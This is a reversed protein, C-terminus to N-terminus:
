EGDKWDIVTEYPSYHAKVHLAEGDGRRLIRVRKEEFPLLNFYNDDFLWGFAQGDQGGGLEVCHATKDTTLIVEDGERRMTLTAEPFTMYREQEIYADKRAIVRGEGDTLVAYLIWERIIPSIPDLNTLVKSEGARLAVPVTFEGMIKNNALSFGVVRLQGVIDDSTDNVGWLLIHNVDEFSLLVPAFSRKVQYYPIYPEMFYDVLSCHFQPWSDNIKWLMHGNVYRKGQTDFYPKGRRVGEGYTRMFDAFAANYRYVLSEGDHAEYFREIAASEGSFFRAKWKDWTEPVPVRKWVPVFFKEDAAFYKEKTPHAGPYTVQNVYGEPWIEEDSMFRRLSRLPGFSTRANESVFVPYKEVSHRYTYYLPHGDGESPDSPYDGGYPSSPMYFRDPDALHVAAAFDELFPKYSMDYKEYTNEENHMWTENGGSWLLICPHHKLRKVEWLAEQYYQRRNEEAELYYAWHLHFDQYVMIGERDCIEYFSDGYPAGGGWIRLININGNALRLMMERCREEDWRHTRGDLECLNGGWLKIERGNVRFRMDGTKELQRFGIVRRVSDIEEDGRVLDIQLTYLPQEGYNKPWWLRPHDVYVSLTHDYEGYKSVIDQRVEAVSCGDPDQLVARLALGSAYSRGEVRINMNASTLWHHYSIRIDADEISGSYSSILQVDEFLGVTTLTVNGFDGFDQACKRIVSIKDMRERVEPELAQMREEVVRNPSHFYVVLLNEEKVQVDLHLPLYMDDHFAIHEGNMFVDAVTDIGGFHLVSREAAPDAAFRCTYIWDEDSIWQCDDVKGIQMEEPLIGANYLAEQVQLGRGADYTEGAQLTEGQMLRDLEGAQAKRLRWQDLIAIKKM